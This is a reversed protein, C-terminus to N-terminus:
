KCSDPIDFDRIKEIEFKRSKENKKYIVIETIEYGNKIFKRGITVGIKKDDQSATV